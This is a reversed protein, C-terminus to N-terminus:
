CLFGPGSISGGNTLHNACAHSLGSYSPAAARITVVQLGTVPDIQPTGDPNFQPFEITKFNGPKGAAVPDTELGDQHQDTDHRAAVGQGSNTLTFHHDMGRIASLEAVSM